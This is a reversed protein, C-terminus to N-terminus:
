LIVFGVFMIIATGVAAGAVVALALVEAFGLRDIFKTIM